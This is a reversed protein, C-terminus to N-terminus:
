KTFEFLGCGSRMKYDKSPDCDDFFDGHDDIRAFSLLKLKQFSNLITSTSFIRQANFELREQGIPTSFYLRGGPALIRELTSMFKFCAKPDIPDSYRGLGFHEAAHLSSLSNISNNSMSILETADGQIFTLGEVDSSIPRIDVVTVPMFCLVHAIFGDVRSGIDLHWPPKREYIKKAAWIDQYFYIGRTRGNPSRRNELIPYISKLTVRFKNEDNMRSYRYLDRLYVPIESANILAQKPDVSMLRAVRVVPRLIDIAAQRWM